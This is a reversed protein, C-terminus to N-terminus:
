KLVLLHKPILNKSPAKFLNETTKGPHNIKDAIISTSFPQAATQLRHGFSNSIRKVGADIHRMKLNTITLIKNISIHKAEEAHYFTPRSIVQPTLEHILILCCNVASVSAVCQEYKHDFIVEGLRSFSEEFGRKSWGCGVCKFHM